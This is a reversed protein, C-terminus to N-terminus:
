LFPTCMVVVCPFLYRWRRNYTLSITFNVGYRYLVLAIYLGLVSLFMPPILSLWLVMMSSHDALTIYGGRHVYLSSENSDILRYDVLINMVLLGLAVARMTWLPVRTIKKITLGWDNIVDASQDFPIFGFRASRAEHLRFALEFLVIVFIPIQLSHFFRVCDALPGDFSFNGGDFLAVNEFAICISLAPLVYAPLISLKQLFIIQVFFLLIAVIGFTLCFARQVNDRENDPDWHIYQDDDGM